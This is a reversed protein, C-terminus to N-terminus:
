LMNIYPLYQVAKKFLEPKQELKNMVTLITSLGFENVMIQVARLLALGEAESNIVCRFTLEEVIPYQVIPKDPLNPAGSIAESAPIQAVPLQIGPNITEDM